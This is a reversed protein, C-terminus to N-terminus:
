NGLVNPLTIEDITCGDFFKYSSHWFHNDDGLSEYPLYAGTNPDKGYESDLSGRMMKLSHYGDVDVIYAAPATFNRDLYLPANLGTHSAIPVNFYNNATRAIYQRTGVVSGQPMSAANDLAADDWMMIISEGQASQKMEQRAEEVKKRAEEYDDSKPKNWEVLNGQGVNFNFMPEPNSPTSWGEHKTWCEEEYIYDADVTWLVLPKDNVSSYKFSFGYETTYDQVYTYSAILEKTGDDKEFYVNTDYNYAAGTIDTATISGWFTWIGNELTWANDYVDAPAPPVAHNFVDSIVNVDCEETLGLAVNDNGYISITKAWVPFGQAFTGGQPYYFIEVYWEGGQCSNGWLLDEANVGVLPATEDYVDFSNDDYLQSMRLGFRGGTNNILSGIYNTHYLERDAIEENMESMMDALPPFMKDLPPDADFWQYSAVIISTNDMLAAPVGDCDFGVSAPLSNYSESETTFKPMTNPLQIYFEELGFDCSSPSVQAFPQFAIGKQYHSIPPTITGTFRNYFDGYENSCLLWQAISADNQNTWTGCEYNTDMLDYGFLDTIAPLSATDLALEPYQCEVSLNTTTFYGASTPEYDPNDPNSTDEFLASASTCEQEIPLVEFYVQRMIMFDAYEKGTMTAGSDIADAKFEVQLWPYVYFGDEDGNAGDTGLSSMNIQVKFLGEDTRVSCPAYNIDEGRGYGFIYEGDEDGAQNVMEGEVSVVVFETAPDYDIDWGSITKSDFHWRSVFNDLESHFKFVMSEETDTQALGFDWFLLGENSTLYPDHNSQNFSPHAFPLSTFNQNHGKNYITGTTPNEAYLYTGKSQWFFPNNFTTFWFGLQSAPHQGLADGHVNANNQNQNCLWTIMGTTGNPKIGVSPPVRTDFLYNLKDLCARKAYSLTTDLPNYNYFDAITCPDSITPDDNHGDGHGGGKQASASFGVVLLLLLVYYRM